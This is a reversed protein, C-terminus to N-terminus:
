RPESFFETVAEKGTLFQVTMNEAYRRIIEEETYPLFQQETDVVVLHFQKQQKEEGMGSDKGMDQITM